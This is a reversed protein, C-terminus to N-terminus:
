AYPAFNSVSTCLMGWINGPSGLAVILDEFEVETRIQKKEHMKPTEGLTVNSCTQTQTHTHSV